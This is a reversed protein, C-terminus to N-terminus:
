RRRRRRRRPSHPLAFYSEWSRRGAEEEDDEDERQESQKNERWAESDADFKMLQYFLYLTVLSAILGVLVAISFDLSPIAWHLLLGEGLALGVLFANLVVFVALLVLLQKM